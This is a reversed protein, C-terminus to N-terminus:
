LYSYAKNQLLNVAANVDALGLATIGANMRIHYVIRLWIDHRDLSM